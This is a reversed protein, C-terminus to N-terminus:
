ACGTNCNSYCNTRIAPNADLCTNLAPCFPNGYFCLGGGFKKYCSADNTAKQRNCQCQCDCGSPTVCPGGGPGLALAIGVMQFEQALQEAIKSDGAQQALAKGVMHALDDVSFLAFTAMASTMGFKKLAQRRSLREREFRELATEAPAPMESTQMKETENELM